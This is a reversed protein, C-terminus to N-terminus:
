YISQVIADFVVTAPADRLPTETQSIDSWRWHTIAIVTM